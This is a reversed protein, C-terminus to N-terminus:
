ICCSIHCDNIELYRLAGLAAQRQILCAAGSPEKAAHHTFDLTIKAAVPHQRADLAFQKM